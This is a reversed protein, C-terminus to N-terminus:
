TQPSMTQCTDSCGDGSDTNGDDCTEGPDVVNDGCPAFVFVHGEGYPAGVVVSNGMGIIAWGFVWSVGMQPNPITQTVEDTASSFRLPTIQGIASYRARQAETM